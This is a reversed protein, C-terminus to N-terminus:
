GPAAGPGPRVSGRLARDGGAPALDWVIGDDPGWITEATPAILVRGQADIATGDLTGTAFREATSASWSGVSVASTTFMSAALCVALVCVLSKTM